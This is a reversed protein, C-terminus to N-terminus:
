ATEQKVSSPHFVGIPIAVSSRNVKENVRSVGLEFSFIVLFIGGFLFVWTRYPNLMLIIFLVTIGLFRRSSNLRPLFVIIFLMMSTALLNTHWVETALFMTQHTPFLSLLLIVFAESPRISGKNISYYWYLFIVPLLILPTFQIANLLVLEDVLGSSGSVINIIAMLMSGLDQNQAGM